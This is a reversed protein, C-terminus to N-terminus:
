MDPFTLAKPLRGHALLSHTHPSQVLFVVPQTNPSPRIGQLEPLSPRRPAGLALVMQVSLRLQDWSATNDGTWVAGHRQSGVFFSRSLLFPREGGSPLGARASLGAFTAAAQLAGYLNHM